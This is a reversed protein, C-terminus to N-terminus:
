QMDQASDAADRDWGHASPRGFYPEMVRRAQMSCGWHPGQMYWECGHEMRQWLDCWRIFFDTTEDIVLKQKRRGGVM